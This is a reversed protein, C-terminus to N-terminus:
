AASNLNVNIGRQKAMTLFGNKDVAKFFADQVDVLGDQVLKLLSDNLLQNGDQKQTLMHNALHQVKGERIMASVADNAILIEHAAVRGGSKKKLLTQAVVGRLSSALMVRIQSQRDAPFQDIIRDVTSMATTTHLTGFVLHGTEATEIAIAITELDRMEGILVIDPDERLAAKLARGFSGTHKHVERQNVLCLQQPHVFEIPDEITLIHEKRTKNILDLMAALTTSKGSGTPGTVLVLGKNLTCLKTIAPALGLQEATLIQSPIHRMVAGVGNRDRFVNVRFRGINALEYAYDTDQSRSFEDHNRKPMTPLLLQRMMDPSIPDQSVRAIDGHVRYIVPQGVTLHMDSAKMKVMERLLGDIPNQGQSVSGESADKSGFNIEEVRTESAASAVPSAVVSSPAPQVPPAPSVTKLSPIEESAIPKAKAPQTEAKKGTPPAKRFMGGLDPAASASASKSDNSVESKPTEVKPTEAKPESVPLPQTKGSGFLPVAPTPAPASSVEAAAQAPVEAPITASPQMQIAPPPPVSAALPPAPPASNIPAPPPPVSAAAFPLPAVQPSAPKSDEMPTVMQDFLSLGAPTFIDIRLPNSFARLKLVGQAGVNLSGTLLTKDGFSQGPMIMTFIQDLEEVSLMTQPDSEVVQDAFVYKPQNQPSLRVCLAKRTLAANLIARLKQM